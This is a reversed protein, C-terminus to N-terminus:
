DDGLVTRMGPRCIVKGENELLYTWWVKGRQCATSDTMGNVVQNMM